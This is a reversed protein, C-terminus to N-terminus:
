QDKDSIKEKLFRQAYDTIEKWNRRATPYLESPECPQKPTPETCRSRIGHPLSPDGQSGKATTNGSDYGLLDKAEPYEAMNGSCLPPNLLGCRPKACASELHERFSLKYDIIVGLYRLVRTSTLTTDDIDVNFPKPFWKQRTLGVM